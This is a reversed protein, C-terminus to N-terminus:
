APLVALGTGIRVGFVRGVVADAMVSDPPGDAVLRGAELLAVRDAFRAALALDHLVVVVARGAAAQARLLRMVAFGQAPDLDACPEDLLMVDPATALVRAIMARRVEGGSLRDIRRDAMHDLGLAALAAAVPAEAADSHPLRGLAAIERVTMGWAARAGQELWAIRRARGRPSLAALPTGDLTARGADPRLLGALARLLTSKGAGNPGVLAVLEGARVKLSVGDLVARGGLRVILEEAAIM